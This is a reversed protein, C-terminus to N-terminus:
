SYVLAIAAGQKYGMSYAVAFTEPTGGAASSQSFSGMVRSAIGSVDIQEFGTSTSITGSTNDVIMAGIVFDGAGTLVDLNAATTGGSITNDSSCAAYTKGSVDYLMLGRGSYAAPFNAVVDASGTSTAVFEWAQVTRSNYAVTTGRQTASVAGVSAASAGGATHTTLLLYRNGTILDATLTTTSSSNSEFVADVFSLTAASAFEIDARAVNSVTGDPEGRAVVSLEYVGSLGDTFTVTSDCEGTELDIHGCDSVGAGSIIAEADPAASPETVVWYLRSPADVVVSIEESEEDVTLASIFPAPGAVPVARFKRTVVRPLSLDRGIFLSRM